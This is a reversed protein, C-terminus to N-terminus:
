RAADHVPPSPTARGSFAVQVITCDDTAPHDACFDLMHRIVSQLDACRAATDLREEGFSDGQRDEAETFGDSVLIIRSGPEIRATGVLYQAEPILGVPLNNADLRRVLDDSCIRPQIHGCNLYELSGDERLRLLLMTAYKGVDKSCLYDNTAAAIQDLPRGAQMQIYLMGQLTQALIAAAIGKGSVDVLAVSLASGDFLVDFFDGGVASCAVSHAQVRAFPLAPIKVAMLGKQIGAAIELQEDNQRAQEEIAALQANEVLAAAERAITNILDHDIETLREPHFHSDLYLVGFVRRHKWTEPHRGGRLPRARRLPICIVSRINHALISHPVSSAPASGIEASATDTVTFREAGETAQRIITRSVTASNHLLAGSRDMGLKFDLEGDSRVLFIFGREMRALSLAIELLSAFIQDVAGSTNLRHAAHLFWRLKEMDSTQANIKHLEEVFTHPTSTRGAGESGFQLRPAGLSGFQLKDFPLLTHERIRHGNVFTGHRSGADKLLFGPGDKTIEAHRRSVFTQPLVLSCGPSRGIIFPFRELPISRSGPDDIPTISASHTLSPVHIKRQRGRKRGAMWAIELM